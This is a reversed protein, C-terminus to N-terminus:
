YRAQRACLYNQGTTPNSAQDCRMEIYNWTQPGVIGDAKLHAKNQYAAVALLTRDGFQGDIVLPYGEQTLYFQLTATCATQNTGKRLVLTSKFVLCNRMTPSLRTGAARSRNLLYTGTAAFALVFVLLVLMQKRNGLLNRLSRGKSTKAKAKKTTAKGM